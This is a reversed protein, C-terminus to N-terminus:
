RCDTHRGLLHLRSPQVTVGEFLGANLRTAHPCTWSTSTPNPDVHAHVTRHRHILRPPNLRSPIDRAAGGSASRATLAHCRRRRAPLRQARCVTADRRSMADRPLSRSDGAADAVANREPAAYRQMPEVDVGGDSAHPARPTAGDVQLLLMARMAASDKCTKISSRMKRRKKRTHMADSAADERARSVM